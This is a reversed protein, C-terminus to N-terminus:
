KVTKWRELFGKGLILLRSYVWCFLAVRNYKGAVLSVVVVGCNSRSDTDNEAVWYEQCSTEKEEQNCRRALGCLSPVSQQVWRHQRVTYFWPRTVYGREVDRIVHKLWTVHAKVM